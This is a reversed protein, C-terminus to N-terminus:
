GKIKYSNLNPPVTESTDTWAGNESKYQITYNRLPGYGDFEPLWSITVSRSEV